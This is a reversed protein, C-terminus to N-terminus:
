CTTDYSRLSAYHMYLRYCKLMACHKRKGHNRYTCIIHPPAHCLQKLAINFESTYDLIFLQPFQQRLFNAKQQGLVYFVSDELTAAANSMWYLIDRQLCNTCYRTYGEQWSLGHLRRHQYRYSTKEEDTVMDWTKQPLFVYMMYRLPNGSDMVCLEKIHFEENGHQYAEFDIFYVNRYSAM